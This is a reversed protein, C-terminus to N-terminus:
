LPHGLCETGLSYDTFHSVSSVVMFLYINDKLIVSLIWIVKLSIVRFFGLLCALVGLKPLKESVRRITLKNFGYLGRCVSLQSSWPIM